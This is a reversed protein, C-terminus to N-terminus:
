CILPHADYIPENCEFPAPRIARRDMPQNPDLIPASKAFAYSYGRPSRDHQFQVLIGMVPIEIPAAVSPCNGSNTRNSVINLVVRVSMQVTHMGLSSFLCYFYPKSSIWDKAQLNECRGNASMASSVGVVHSTSVSLYSPRRRIASADFRWMELHYASSQNM